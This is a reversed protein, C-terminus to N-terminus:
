DWLAFATLLSAEGKKRPDVGLARQRLRTGLHRSQERIQVIRVDDASRYPHTCHLFQEAMPQPDVRADGEMSSLLTHFLLPIGSGPHTINCRM